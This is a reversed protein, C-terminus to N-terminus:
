KRHTQAHYFKKPQTVPMVATISKEERFKELSPWLISRDTNVTIYFSMSKRSNETTQSHFFLSCCQNYSIIKGQLKKYAAGNLFVEM